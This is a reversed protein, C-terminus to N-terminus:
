CTTLGKAAPEPVPEIPIRISIAELANGAGGVPLAPHMDELWCNAVMPAPLVIELQPLSGAEIDNLWVLVTRGDPLTVIVADNDNVLSVRHTRGGETLNREIEDLMDSAMANERRDCLRNDSIKAFEAEIELLEMMDIREAELEVRLEKIRAKDM